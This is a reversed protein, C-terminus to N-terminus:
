HVTRRERDSKREREEEQVYMYARVIAESLGEAIVDSIDCKLQEKCTDNTFLKSAIGGVKDVRVHLRRTLSRFDSLALDLRRHIYRMELVLVSCTAFVLVTEFFEM